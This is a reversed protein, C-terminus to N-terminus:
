RVEADHGNGDVEAASPPRCSVAAAIVSAVVPRIISFLEHLLMKMWRPKRQAAEKQQALYYENLRDRQKNRGTVYKVAAFAGLIGVGVTAWPHEKAWLRPNVAEAASHRFDTFAMALAGKAEAAQETLYDGESSPASRPTTASIRANNPEDNKM